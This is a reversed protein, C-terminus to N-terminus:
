DIRYDLNGSYLLSIIKDIINQQVDSIAFKTAKLRYDIRNKMSPTKTKSLDYGLKLLENGAAWQVISIQHTSLDKKWREVSKKNLPGRTAGHWHMKYDPVSLESTKQFNLMRPDYEEGLFQCLRGLEYEPNTLLDEYRLEIYEDVKTNQRAILGHQIASKWNLISYELTKHWWPMEILSAIVDRCDRIIHIIQADPYLKRIKDMHHIYYPRKDGWRKKGYKKAYSNWPVALSSGLSKSVLIEKIVENLEINLDNLKTSTHFNNKFWSALKNRNKEKQLNGFMIRRKYVKKVYKTQPPIAIRPHSHLMLRLLTTGSRESGAIFIPKM